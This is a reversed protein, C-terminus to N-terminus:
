IEILICGQRGKAVDLIVNLIVNSLNTRYGHGVDELPSLARVWTAGLARPGDLENLAAFGGDVIEAPSM